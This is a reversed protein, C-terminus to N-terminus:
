GITDPAITEIVAIADNIPIAFGMGEIDTEAYKSVNIGIVEGALNYLPGGSNGSNIAADHQLYGLPDTGIIRDTGSVIGLTVSGYFDYGRPNGAALVMTGKAVLDSDGFPSIRIDQVLDAGSFSLVAIDVAADSGLLTAVVTTGDEFVVKFNNGDEVVHQNTILYYLDDAEDHFYIVGSGLSKAEADFYNTVGVVSHSALAVVEDISDQVANIVVSINGSAIQSELEALVAAYVEEDLGAVLSTSLEAYLEAYIQDYVDAYIQDILDELGTYVYTHISPDLTETESPITTAPTTTNYTTTTEDAQVSVCAVLVFVICLLGFLTQIKKM